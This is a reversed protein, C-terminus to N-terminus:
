RRDGDVSGAGRLQRDVQGAAFRLSLAKLDAAAKPAKGKMIQLVSLEFAARAAADYTQPEGDQVLEPELWRWEYSWLDAPHKLRRM